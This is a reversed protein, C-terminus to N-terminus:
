GMVIYRYARDPLASLGHNIVISGTATGSFWLGPLAAAASASMPMLLVVSNRGIQDDRLITTGQDAGLTVEGAVNLKGKLLQNLIARARSGWAENAAVSPFMRYPAM